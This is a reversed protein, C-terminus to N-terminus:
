RASSGRGLRVRGAPAFGLLLLALNLATFVALPLYRPTGYGHLNSISIVGFWALGVVINGLICLQFVGRARLGGCHQAALFLVLWVVVGFAGTEKPDWAWFRGWALKAWVMGLGTGIATLCTAIVSFQLSVRALSRQRSPSFEAFCRQCVFCIGLGGLLFATVYGATITFVHIALLLNMGGGDFRGALFAALAIAGALGLGATLKVPMWTPEDLKTFESAIMPPSGLQAVARQFAEAETTGSGVLEEVTERLHSELEDLTETGVKPADMMTKRWEAIRIELNHM